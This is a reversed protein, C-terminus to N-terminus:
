SSKRSGARLVWLIHLPFHKSNELVKEIRFIPSFRPELFTGLLHGLPRVEVALAYPESDQFTGSECDVGHSACLQLLHCSAPLIPHSLIAYIVLSGGLGWAIVPSPAKKRRSPHNGQILIWKWKGGHRGCFYFAEASEKESASTFSHGRLPECSRKKGQRGQEHRERKPQQERQPSFLLHLLSHWLCGADPLPLPWHKSHFCWALHEWM